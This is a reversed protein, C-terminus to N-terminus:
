DWVAIVRTEVSERVEENETGKVFPACHGCGGAVTRNKEHETDALKIFLVQNPKQEPMCYWRHKEPEKPPLVNYAELIFEGSELTESTHRYEFPDLEGDQLSRWDLVALGDRKVPKVPRQLM